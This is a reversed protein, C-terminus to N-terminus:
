RSRKSDDGDRVAEILLVTSLSRPMLVADLRVPLSLLLNGWKFIFAGTRVARPSLVRGTRRPKRRDALSALSVVAMMVIKELPGLVKKIRRPSLGAQRMKRGIDSLNYRRYHRVYADDNAFYAARHPFTILCQGGPPLVRAMEKLAQRDDAIHEIVESAVCRRVAGSKFPLATGDAVVYQGQGMASKLSQLGVLSFDTFVTKEGAPCIPSIGSGIEVTWGGPQGTLLTSVAKQRLRYNYLHKKLLVYATSQFFDQFRNPANAPDNM